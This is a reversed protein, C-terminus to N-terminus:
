VTHPTNVPTFAIALTVDASSIFGAEGSESHAPQRCIATDTHQVSSTSTRSSLTYGAEYATSSVELLAAISVQLRMRAGPTAFSVQQPGELQVTGPLLILLLFGPLRWGQGYTGTKWTLNKSPVSNYICRELNGHIHLLFTFNQAVKGVLWDSQCHLLALEDRLADPLIVVDVQSDGRAHIQTLHFKTSHVFKIHFRNEANSIVERHCCPQLKIGITLFLLLLLLFIHLELM